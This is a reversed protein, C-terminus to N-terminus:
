HRSMTWIARLVQTPDIAASTAASDVLDLAEAACVPQGLSRSAFGALWDADSGPCGLMMTLYQWTIPGLGAVDEYAARHTADDPDLDAAHRVGVDLLRTSAEVIGATKLPGGTLRQRNQLVEALDAPDLDALHVLDDLPRPHEHTRWRSVAARVGTTPSGYAARIGMVSDILAAEIEDPWGTPAGAWDTSAPPRIHDLLCAVDSPM